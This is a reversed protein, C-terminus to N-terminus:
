DNNEFDTLAEASIVFSPLYGLKSECLMFLKVGYQKRKSPIHIRFPLRAKM